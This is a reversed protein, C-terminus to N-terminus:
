RRRRARQRPIVLDDLDVPSQLGPASRRPLSRRTARRRFYLAAGGIIALPLAVPTLFGPILGSLNLLLEFFILGATFMWLGIRAVRAGGRAVRDKRELDGYFALGLGISTPVVLTWAYAWTAWLGTLNQLFLLAGLMTTMAAPITLLTLDSGFRRVAGFMLLGPGLIFLPWLLAALTGSGLALFFFLALLLTGILARNVPPRRRRKLSRNM